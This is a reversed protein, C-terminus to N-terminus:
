LYLNEWVQMVRLTEPWYPSESALDTNTVSPNGVNVASTLGKELTFESNGYLYMNTVFLKGVNVAGM